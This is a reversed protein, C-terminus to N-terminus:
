CRGFVHRKGGEDIRDFPQLPQVNALGLRDEQWLSRQSARSSATWRRCHFTTSPVRRPMQIFARVDHGREGISREFLLDRLPPRVYAAPLDKVTGVHLLELPM